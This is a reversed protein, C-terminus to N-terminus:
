SYGGKLRKADANTLLKEIAEIDEGVEIRTTEILDVISSINEVTENSLANSTIRTELLDDLLEDLTPYYSRNNKDGNELVWNHRDCLIAINNPLELFTKFRM